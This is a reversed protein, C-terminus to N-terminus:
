ISGQHREHIICDEALELQESRKLFRLIAKNWNRLMKSINFINMLSHTMPFSKGSNNTRLLNHIQLRNCHRNFEALHLPWKLKFEWNKQYKFGHKEPMFHLTPGRLGLHRHQATARQGMLPLNLYNPNQMSVGHWYYPDFSKDTKLNQRQVFVKGFLVCAQKSYQRRQTHTIICTLLIKKFINMISVSTHFQLFFLFGNKELLKYLVAKSHLHPGWSVLIQSEEEMQHFVGDAWKAMEMINPQGSLENLNKQLLKGFFWFSSKLWGM